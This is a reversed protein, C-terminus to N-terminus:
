GTPIIVRTALRRFVPLCDRQPTLKSSLVVNGTIPNAEIIAALAVQLVSAGKGYEILGYHLVNQEACVLENAADCYDAASTIKEGVPLCDM